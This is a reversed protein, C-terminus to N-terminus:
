QTEGKKVSSQSTFDREMRKVMERLIRVMDFEFMSQSDVGYYFEDFGVKRCLQHRRWTKRKFPKTMRIIISDTPVEYRWEVEYGQEGLEKLLKELM